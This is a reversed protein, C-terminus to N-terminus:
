NIRVKAPLCELSIEGTQSSQLLQQQQQQQLQHQSTNMRTQTELNTAPIMSFLEPRRLEGKREKKWCCAGVDLQGSSKECPIM